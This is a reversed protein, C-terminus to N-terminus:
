LDDCSLYYLFVFADRRFDNMSRISNPISSLGTWDVPFVHSCNLAILMQIEISAYIKARNEVRRFALVDDNERKLSSELKVYEKQNECQRRSIAM